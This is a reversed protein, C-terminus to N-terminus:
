YRGKTDAAIPEIFIHGLEGMDDHALPYISQGLAPNHPGRFVLSFAECRLLAEPIGGEGSAQPGHGTVEVLAVDLQAAGATLHFTEHERGAFTEITLLEPM